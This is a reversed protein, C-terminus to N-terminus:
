APTASAVPAKSKSLEALMKGVKRRGIGRLAIIKAKAAERPKATGKEWLFISNQSVGLLLAMEGRSLDLKTRLKSINSSGLRSKELKEQPPLKIGKPTGDTKRELREVKSELAAVKHKLESVTKKMEIFQGAFPGLLRKAEKKALRAIEEKLILGVNPM